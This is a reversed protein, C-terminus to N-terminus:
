PKLLLMHGVVGKTRFLQSNSLVICLSDLSTRSNGARYRAKVSPKKEMGNPHGAQLVQLAVKCRLRNWAM